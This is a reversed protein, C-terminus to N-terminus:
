VAAPHKKDIWVIRKIEDTSGPVTKECYGSLTYGIQSIEEEMAQDSWPGLILRGGPKVYHTYLNDLFSKRLDCPIDPLIMSYVYDFAFPPKWYLANGLFLRSSFDPLRHRALDFLGQSIELGYFDVQVDTNRMWQDLSEILHGNAAGIDIFTGDQHIPELIMWRINRWRYVDSGHGSQARPNDRSLYLQTCERECNSFFDEASIQGSSYLEHLRAEYTNLNEDTRKEVSLM